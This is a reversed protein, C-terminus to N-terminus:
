HRLLPGPPPPSREGQPSVACAVVGDFRIGLVPGGSAELLVFDVRGLRTVQQRFCTSLRVSGGTVRTFAHMVRNNNLIRHLESSDTNVPRVPENEADLFAELLCYLDDNDHGTDFAENLLLTYSRLNFM